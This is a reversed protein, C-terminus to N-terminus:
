RGDRKTLTAFFGRHKEGAQRISRRRRGLWRASRRDAEPRRHQPRGQRRRGSRHAGGRCGGAHCLRDAHGSRLPGRCGAIREGRPREPRAEVIWHRSRGVGRGQCEGRCKKRKHDSLPSHNDRLGYAPLPHWDGMHCRHACLWGSCSCSELGASSGPNKAGAARRFERRDSCHKKRLRAPLFQCLGSRRGQSRAQPRYTPNLGLCSASVWCGRHATFQQTESRELWGVAGGLRM